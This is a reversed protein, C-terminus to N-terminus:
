KTENFLRFSNQLHNFMALRDDKLMKNLPIICQNSLERDDSVQYTVILSNDSQKINIINKFLICQNKKGSHSCLTIFGHGIIIYKTNWRLLLFIIVVLLLMGYPIPVGQILAYITYLIFIFIICIMSIRLFRRQYFAKNTKDIKQWNTTYSDIEINM